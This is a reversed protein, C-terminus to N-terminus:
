WKHKSKKRNQLDHRPPSTRPSIPPLVRNVSRGVPFIRRVILGNKNTLLLSSNQPTVKVAFSIVEPGYATYRHLGSGPPSMWDLCGADGRLRMSNRTPSGWPALRGCFSPGRSSHYSGLIEKNVYLDVKRLILDMRVQTSPPATQPRLEWWM